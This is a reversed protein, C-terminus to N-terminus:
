PCTAPWPYSANAGNMLLIRYPNCSYSATKRFVHIWYSKGLDGCANTTATGANGPTCTKYDAPKTHNNAGDQGNGRDCAYAQYQDYGVGEVGGVPCKLTGTGPCGSEYVTLGYETNGETMVVQFNYQNSGGILAQSASVLYWDNDSGELINGRFNVSTAPSSTLTAWAAVPSSCSDGTGISDEYDDKYTCAQTSVHNSSASVNGAADTATCWYECSQGAAIAISKTFTGTGSATATQTGISCTSYFTITAGAETNNGSLSVTTENQYAVLPTLVPVGPAVTDKVLVSATGSAGVANGSDKPTAICAWTENHLTVSAPIANTTYAAQTTGNKTWAYTYTIADGDADTSGSPTCTLAAGPQPSTPTISVTPQTPASNTITITPSQVPTGTISGDYPTVIVYITDGRAYLSSSLTSATEGNIAVGGKYWQYRATVADGDPDYPTSPSALADTDTYLLSPVISVSVYSPPSNAITVSATAPAGNATGDNPTAICQVVQGRNFSTGTLQNTTAGNVTTGDVKWAYSVTVTDTDADGTTGPTCVLTSGEYATTPALSASALTPLSNQIVVANSAVQTGSATGDTPTAKCVVTNGKNFSTGTLSAGTAAITTGNVTWAYTYSVTDGDADAGGAPTCNLTTIEYATTPALGVSVLSPTSNTVIVAPSTRPTGTLTGDTPTVTVTISDGKGFATAGDLTGATAGNIATGNKSWQYSYGPADGDADAWGAPVATLLTDTYATSPSITAGTISPASDLVVVPASTTPASSATGDSASGTCTVSNGKSFATGTLSNTIAGNVTTGNVAWAYTLTLGDSDADAATITCTLTSTETPSAPTVVVSSVTPASNAITVTNSTAPAGSTTGDNPTAKCAVADGHNFSTGTLTAGTAGITVSNVTWAFSVTVSDGDADATTGAACTLTSAESATTPTLSASAVTPATNGIVRAASTQPTGSGQGDYPTITVTISDGRVFQSSPLTPQTAGGIATGNKKWAYTYGEPDGDADAWGAPVATLTDGTYATAPTITVGTASPLSNQVVVVNSTVPASSSTGDSATVVCAVAQNKNFKAGTLTNTIAGSVTVSDVTWAYTYTIPNLDPDTATAACTFTTAEFASLPTLTVSTITPPTNGIVVANSAVAAGNVTGDNPTVLCVISDGSGFNAPALTSGTQGIIPNNNKTWAYAPTVGDGDLDTAGNPTCTLTSSVTASTPTLAVSAVSPPSNSITLPASVVSGGAITGDFATATVTITDNKDFATGALTPGTAAGIVLGNRTWQYQWGAADGDADAFGTPNATLLTNTYAPTPTITVGGATPASNLITVPSSTLPTTTAFGDSATVTCRVDDGKDFKTGNLTAGTAGTVTAGNVQWSYTPTVVDNDADSMTPSCTLVTTEYATTPSLGVASLVPATNGVTVVNSLAAPGPATGDNPTVRCQVTDGKDFSAGSLTSTTAGITAGSVIWAYAVTVADADADATAGPSCTFTTTETATTPSLGASAVSPVSNIVTRTASTRPTGALTGDFPTAIVYVTDGKAFYTGPLTATTEAGILAGNVYWAFTTREADGDADTYGATAAVMTDNTVPSVPTLTVGTIAPASDLITLSNSTMPSSAATGDSATATCAIVDGKDFKTGTLQNAAAGSIVVGGSTWVYTYAIADGDADFGAPACTLTSTETPSAPTLTVTSLTPASNGVTVVNSAVTAGADTGDTPTVDCRVTDGRAFYSGSLTSGTAAVTSGSVVWAFSVSVPDGDADANAGPTCTLTTAETPNSPGLTPNAATPASNRILRPASILPTGAVEGDWPTVTVTISDGKAFASGYLTASTEGGIAVNSKSWQYLWAEPDGDADTWGAPVATLTTDTYAIAPTISVGSGAGPTDQITVPPSQVTASSSTGDSVSALCLVVDRKSFKTGNLTAGNAGSVTAGNVSWAYSTTLAEGDADSGTAACSLTTGEYAPTPTLTVTTLTPASNGITLTNSSVPAGPDTGDTPTITCRVSDGRAFSAGTLTSATAGNVTSGNVSWAYGLTVADADADLVGSASCTLTSTETPNAPAASVTAITPPSNRITRQTSTLMTGALTGDWPTATVYVRDGKDFEVGSLQATTEGAVATGEVYWQYLYAEPDNDIDTWGSAVASLLTDTYATAPNIVITTASPATDGIVVTNSAVPASTLTGDSATVTCVVSQGKDFKTGNITSATAAIATGNVTWSWAYSMADGDADSATPTCTLTSTETATTPTLAVSAVVPASNGITVTISAVPLGDETGDNPTVVCRVTDGHAFSGGSLTSGTAAIAVGGVEWSYRLTVPDGDADSTSGPACTLTTAETPNAPGLNVSSLLPATNRILVQSSTMPAGIGGHGDNPTAIVNIRDGKDFQTGDLTSATAGLIASGNAYWAYTYGEPDGDADNWGTVLASLTDDTRAVAPVISVGTATPVANGIVVTNSQVSPSTAVGDSATAQCQVSDDRSFKSGTLTSGNAGTAPAGDILWTYTYTIPDNDADTATPTCTLTTAETASTPALTVSTVVPAQDGIVLTNSAIPAGSVTGDTPTVACQVADGDGFAGALTSTTAAIATGNVTWAYTLSVTDGDRDQAGVASCTLTSGVTPNTPTLNAASLTPAADSITRQTSVLPTGSLLGDWPTATVFVRDGRAFNGGDLTSTIEGPVPTGNVSWAFRYAEPDGDADSWGTVVASLTDDTYAVAPQISVGTAQPASDDITVTNSTAAIGDVTGDNPTVTCYVTDGRDFSAGTLTASTAGIASGTVTWAIAYTVVDGDADTAPPHGCTLTSTETATAPTLTASALVPPANGITVSNSTVPTGADLGDTPTAVCSVADGSGFQTGDLTTGHVAIVTGNVRWDIIATVTDGDADTAGSPTCTLVTAENATLPTLTVAAFAPATNDVVVLNSAVPLGPDVGDTPTVTCQIEQGRTFGTTLRNTTVASPVGDITWGYTYAVTDGDVDAGGVPTCTFDDAVRAPDPTLAVSAVSPPSNAIVITDEGSGGAGYPDNATAVVRWSDGRATLAALITDSTESTPLGNKYWAYTTTVPDGDPDVGATVLAAHLDALSTAPDPAIQVTPASPLANIRFDISAAGTFGDTDLASVTLTHQGISLTSSSFRAVGSSNARATSIVGDLSSEWTLDLTNPADEGDAVQAEFAVNTGANFVDGDAPTVIMVGPADGVAVLIADVCTAGVEDTVTLTITHSQVSLADFAFIVDGGSSPTSNGLFGDKDSSWVATLQDSPIDADTATAEFLVTDGDGVVTGSPPATIACEPATNPPGVQLTLVDEATRGTTDAVDLTVLHEGESLLAFGSTDGTSTPVADFGLDGDLSSAWAVHLLDGRDEPDSVVGTFLIPQDSYFVGDGPPGTIEAQPSGNAAVHVDIAADGSQGDPNTVVLGVHSDGPQPWAYTCLINGGPDVTSDLCVANGDISWTASMTELSDGFKQDGVLATLRVDVGQSLGAQDSPSTITVTPPETYVTLGDDGRKCAALVLVPIVFSRRM